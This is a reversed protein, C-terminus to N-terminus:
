KTIGQHILFNFNFCEKVSLCLETKAVETSSCFIMIRPTHTWAQCIVVCAFVVSKIKSIKLDCTCCKCHHRTIVFGQSCSLRLVTKQVHVNMLSSTSPNKIKSSKILSPSFIYILIEHGSKLMDVILTEYVTRTRLTFHM